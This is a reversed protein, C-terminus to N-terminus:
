NFRYTYTLNLVFVRTLGDPRVERVMVPFGTVLQLSSKESAMYSASGTLNITLGDSGHVAKRIGTSDAVKDETLRLIGLGGASFRFHRMTFLREVKLSADNGRSLLNSAFYKEAEANGEWASDLFRNKNGNSVVQQYGASFTWKRMSYSLGALLDFTGLSTQYPMPLPNNEKKLDAANVPIKGLITITYANANATKLKYNLGALVDGAGYTSALNGNIAFFSGRLQGSLSSTLPLVLEPTAQTILVGQEGVGATVTITFAARNKPDSLSDGSESLPTPHNSMTCIGADSCGQASIKAGPVYVLLLGAIAKFIVVGKKYNFTDMSKRQTDM